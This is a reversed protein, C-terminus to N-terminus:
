PRSPVAPAAAALALALAPVVRRRPRAAAACSRARARPLARRRRPAPAFFPVAAAAANLSHTLSLTLFICEATTHLVSQRTGTIQCEAFNKKLKLIRKASHWIAPVEKGLAAWPVSPLSKKGIRQPTGRLQCEAFSAKGLTKNLCEAFYIKIKKIKDGL